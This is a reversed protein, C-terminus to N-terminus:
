RKLIEAPAPFGAFTVTSRYSEKPPCIYELGLLVFQRYRPVEIISYIGRQRGNSGVNIGTALYCPKDEVHISLQQPACLNFIELIKLRQDSVNFVCILRRSKEPVTDWLKYRVIIPRYMMKKKKEGKIFKYIYLIYIYINLKPHVPSSYYYVATSVLASFRKRKLGM